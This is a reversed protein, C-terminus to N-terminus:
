KKEEKILKKLAKQNIVVPYKDALQKLWHSEISDRQAVPKSWVKANSVDFLLIGDRYEQLLLPVEPHRTYLDHRADATGLDRICLEYIERLFDKSYPKASIPHQRLYRAFEAQTMDMGNLRFLVKNLDKTHEWFAVRLPFLTDCLNAFDAYAEPNPQYHYTRKLYADWTRYLDFNRDTEKMKGIIADKVESFPLRVQRNLLEFIYAGKENYVPRSIDGPKQLAFVAAELVPQLQAPEIPPLVGGKLTDASYAYVLKSFDEGAKAKNYAEDALKAVEEKSRPKKGKLDYPLNIYAVQISRFFPRRAQVKIIEYGDPTRVPASYSGVPTAYAVKEFTKDGQLPQLRPIFLYRVEISGAPAKEKSGKIYPAALRKGLTDFDAGARLQAYIDMVKKYLRLTDATVNQEKDFPVLIHSVVLYEGGRDYITRAASDEGAQDCLYSQILQEKYENFERKFSETQDLGEAEAEAVKLKFDKFLGIYHQVSAPKSFDVENNKRAIYEFEAVPVARNGVVMIVSDALKRAQLAPCCALALLAALTMKKKITFRELKM